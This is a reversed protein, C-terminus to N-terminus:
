GALRAFVLNCAGNLITVIGGQFFFDVNDNFLDINIRTIRAKNEVSLDPDWHREETFGTPPDFLRRTSSGLETLNIM